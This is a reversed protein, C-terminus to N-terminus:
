GSKRSAQNSSSSQTQRTSALVARTYNAVIQRTRQNNEVFAKASQKVTGKKSQMAM